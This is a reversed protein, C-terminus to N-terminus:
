GTRASPDPWPWPRRVADIARMRYEVHDRVTLADVEFYGLHAGGFDETAGIQDLGFAM